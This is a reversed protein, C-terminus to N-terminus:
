EKQSGLPLREEPNQFRKLIKLFIMPFLLKEKLKSIRNLTSNKNDMKVIM